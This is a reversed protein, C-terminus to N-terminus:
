IVRDKLLRTGTRSCHVLQGNEMHLLMRGGGAPEARLIRDVNVITSRHVRIFNKRNLANEFETLTLRVLHMGSLTAVEAYDDAGAISVVESVNIPHIDEGTRIFYRTMEDKEGGGAPRLGGALVVAQKQPQTRIYILAAVLAYGILGQLLQWAVAPGPFFPRVVFKTFAEGQGLGIMVMLLWYWLFAFAPALLMHVGLQHLASWNRVGSTLIARILLVPPALAALNRLSYVASDLLGTGNAILLAAFYSALVLAAALGYFVRDSIREAPAATDFAQM